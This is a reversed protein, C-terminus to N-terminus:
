EAIGQLVMRGVPRRAHAQASLKGGIGRHKVSQAQVRGVLLPQKAHELAKVVVHLAGADSEVHYFLHCFVRAPADLNPRIQPEAGRERHTKRQASQNAPGTHSTTSAGKRKPTAADVAAIITLCDAALGTVLFM